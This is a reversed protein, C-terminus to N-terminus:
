EVGLSKLREENELLKFCSNEAFSKCKNSKNCVVCYSSPVRIQKSLDKALEKLYTNEVKLAEM